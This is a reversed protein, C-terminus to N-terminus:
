NSSRTTRGEIGHHYGLVFSDGHKTPVPTIAYHTIVNEGFCDWLYAATQMQNDTPVGDWYVSMGGKHDNCSVLRAPEGEDFGAKELAKLATFFSKVREDDYPECTAM